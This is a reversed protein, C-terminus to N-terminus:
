NKGNQLHRKVLRSVSRGIVYEVFDPLCLPGDFDNSDVYKDGIKITVNFADETELASISVGINFDNKIM